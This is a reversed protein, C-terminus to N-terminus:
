SLLLYRDSMAVMFILTSPVLRELRRCFPLSAYHKKFKFLFSISVPGWTEFSPIYSSLWSSSGLDSGRGRCAGTDEEPFTSYTM